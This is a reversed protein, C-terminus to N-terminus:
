QIWFCGVACALLGGGPPPPPLPSVQQGGKIAEGAKLRAFSMCEKQLQKETKGETLGQAQLEAFIGPWIAAIGGEFDQKSAVFQKSLGELCAARWREYREAVYVAM